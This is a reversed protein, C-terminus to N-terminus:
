EGYFTVGGDTFVAIADFEIWWTPENKVGKRLERNPVCYLDSAMTVASASIKGMDTDAWSQLVNCLTVRQIRIQSAITGNDVAALFPFDEKCNYYVRWRLVKPTFRNTEDVLRIFEEDGQDMSCNLNDSM